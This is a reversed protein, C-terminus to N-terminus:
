ASSPMRSRTRDRPSPSTYLLCPDLLMRILYIAGVMFLGIFGRRQLDIGAQKTEPSPPQSTPKTQWASSAPMAPPADSQITSALVTSSQQGTDAQNAMTMGKHVMILSPALLIILLLDFNRVSWFRNFKFFLSIMLLSSAFAWITGDIQQYAFSFQEM